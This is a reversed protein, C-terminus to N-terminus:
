DQSNTLYSRCVNIGSNHGDSILFDVEYEFSVSVGVKLLLNVKPGLVKGAM